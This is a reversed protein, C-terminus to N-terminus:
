CTKLLWIGLATVAIGMIRMVFTSEWFSRKMAVIANPWWCALLCKIATIWALLRIVGARDSGITPDSKLVLIASVLFFFCVVRVLTDEELARELWRITGAPKAVFPIGILLQYTGLIVAFTDLSM